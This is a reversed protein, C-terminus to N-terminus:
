EYTITRAVAFNDFAITYTGVYNYPRGLFNIRARVSGGFTVTAVGRGQANITYEVNLQKHSFSNLDTQPNYYPYNANLIMHVSNDGPQSGVNDFNIRATTTDSQSQSVSSGNLSFDVKVTVVGSVGGSGELYRPDTYNNAYHTDMERIDFPIPRSRLSDPIQVGRIAINLTGYKYEGWAIRAPRLLTSPSVNEDFRTITLDSGQYNHMYITDLWDFTLGRIPYQAPVYDTTWGTPPLVAYSVGGNVGFVPKVSEMAIMFNSLTTYAYVALRADDDETPSRFPRIPDTSNRGCGTMTLGTISGVLFVLLIFVVVRNIRM